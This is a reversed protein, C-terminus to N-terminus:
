PKSCLRECETIHLIGKWILEDTDRPLLGSDLCYQITERLAQLQAVRHEPVGRHLWTQLTPHSIGLIRVVVKRPINAAKALELVQNVM